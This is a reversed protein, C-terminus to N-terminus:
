ALSEAPHASHVLVKHLLDGLMLLEAPSLSDFWRAELENQSAMADSVGKRGVPTLRVTVLRRDSESERAREILGDRELTALVSSTTQRTVGALRSIDRAEIEGTIWIIYMVRFGSWTWGAPRHITEESAQVLSTAARVLNIGAHFVQEDLSPIDAKTQQLATREFELATMTTRDASVGTVTGEPM